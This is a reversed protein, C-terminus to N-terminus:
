FGCVGLPGVGRRGGPGRLNSSNRLSAFIVRVDKLVQPAMCHVTLAWKLSNHADHLSCTTVEVWELLALHKSEKATTGFAGM